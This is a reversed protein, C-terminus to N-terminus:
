AATEALHRSFELMATGEEEIGLACLLLGTHVRQAVSWQWIADPDTGTSRALRRSQERPEADADWPDERVLVALDYERDGILGDPDVLAFGRESQLANWQHADGHLLVATRADYAAARALAAAQASRIVNEPTSHTAANWNVEINEALELGIQATTPLHSGQVPRWIQALARVLHIERQRTPLSLDHMSAGLRELLLAGRPADGRLLRVAGRGGALHLATIENEADRGRPVILKLVARTGDACTVGVAYAETADQFPGSLDSLQWTHAIEEILCPLDDLWRQAGLLLARRRVPAPVDILMRDLIAIHSTRHGIAATRALNGLIRQHRPQPDTHESHLSIHPLMHAGQLRGARLGHRNASGGFHGLDIGQHQRTTLGRRHVFQQTGKFQLSRDPFPNRCTHRDVPRARPHNQEGVPHQVTVALLLGETSHIDSHPPVGETPLDVRELSIQPQRPQGVASDTGDM